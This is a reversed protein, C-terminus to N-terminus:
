QAARLWNNLIASQSPTVETLPSLHYTRAASAALAAEVEQESSGRLIRLRIQDGKKKAALAESLSAATAAVGDVQQIVDGPKLGAAEAPSGTPIDTVVLRTPPAGGRGRGGGRGSAPIEGPALEVTDTDVGLDAGSGATSDADLKLGALAFYKSYNVERTTAAYDFVESLSVGAASECEQRFEDDTFGRKKELYYKRYLGRMVDDLSKRNGSADRIKLDLMAGLMAGNNYYSITTRRDGGVGSGTNWTNWSSETASQYHHGTANEFSGISAAMKSLYQERTMLGARVLLLDQYYVSLGESVWLMHTLNEQDYDFPGLAIPRIRKVNFNHFYEHCVYSLWRLFEADTSLHDGAFQISASNLHEIGGNGRGMMLFTYHRYPVDGMLRTAAEVMKQLDALMKPRSVTEAVNELAVYHPVGKVPFQLYEQNGVLLPSDYLVDFNEAAFVGPKDKVPELGTAIQKWNPPLQVTVTVPRQLEEAPHVFIGSPSLYARDEGIYTNAAFATVGYVDYDLVVVGANAIVVRWTNRATKQLALPHGSGDAARFNSVNRAYDGIGYYGPSWAPMKFDHMEGKLGECRFTVHATHTAPQALSITFSLHVTEAAPAYMAALAALCLLQARQMTKIFKVKLEDIKVILQPEWRTESRCPRHFEQAARGLM